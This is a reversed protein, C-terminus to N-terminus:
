PHSRPHISRNPPDPSETEEEPPPPRRSEPPPGLSDAPPSNAASDPPVRPVTSAERGSDPPTGRQQALPPKRGFQVDLWRRVRPVDLLGRKTPQRQPVWMFGSLEFPDPITEPTRYYTSQVGGIVSIERVRGGRLRFIIRDGSAKAAAKLVTDREAMFRIAQANPRARIRRLSDARFFATINQAKLQHIRKLASDEQAAFAAGRVFVTDLSRQRARVRISDGWVQSRKFWTIPSKFLRTEELPLRSEDETSPV